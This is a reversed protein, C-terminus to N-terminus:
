TLHSVNFWDIRENKQPWQPFGPHNQGWTKKIKEEFFSRYGQLSTDKCSAAPVEEIYEVWREKLDELAEEKSEFFYDSTVSHGIPEDLWYFLNAKPHKARFSRDVEIISCQIAILTEEKDGPIFWVKDGEKFDKGVEEEMSISYRM